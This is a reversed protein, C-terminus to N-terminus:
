MWPLVHGSPDDNKCVARADFGCIFRHAADRFGHASVAAGGTQNFRCEQFLSPRVERLGDCGQDSFVDFADDNDRVEQGEANVQLAIKWFDHGAERADMLTHINAHRRRELAM